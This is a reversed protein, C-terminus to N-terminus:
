GEWQLCGLEECGACRRAGRADGRVGHLPHAFARHTRSANGRVPAAGPSSASARRCGLRGVRRAGGSGRVCEADADAGRAASAATRLVHQPHTFRQRVDTGRGAQESTRPQIPPELQERVAHMNACRTRPKHYTRPRTSPAHLPPACRNQARRAQRYAATDATGVTRAGRTHERVTHPAQPPHTPTHLTRSATTRMPEAGPKSAPVRSYRRDWSNACRTYTRAGHAPSTTPAHAHPPHTFRHHADTRRGAHKGTRPQIPPRSQERAGHTNACGPRRKYPTRPAPVTIRAVRPRRKPSSMGALPHVCPSDAASTRPYPYRRYM